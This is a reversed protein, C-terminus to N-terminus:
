ATPDSVYLLHPEDAYTVTTEVALGLKEAVRRSPGNHPAILAVVRDVGLTERAYAIAGRGIETAVGRGQAAVAVHWGVELGATDVAPTRVVVNAVVEGSARDVVASWGLGPGDDRTRAVVRVLVDRSHELPGADADWWVVRPDGLIPHLAAVDDEAWPRAELRETTFRPGDVPQTM